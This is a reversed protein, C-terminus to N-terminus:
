GGVKISSKKAIVELTGSSIVGIGKPSTESGDSVDRGLGSNNNSRELDAKNIAQVASQTSADSGASGADAPNRVLVQAFTKAGSIPYNDIVSLGGEPKWSGEHWAANVKTYLDTM